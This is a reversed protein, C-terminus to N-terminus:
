VYSLVWCFGVDLEVFRQRSIHAELTGLCLTEVLEVFHLFLQHVLLALQQLVELIELLLHNLLGLSGVQLDTIVEYPYYIAYKLPIGYPYNLGEHRFQLLLCWLQSLQPGFYDLNAVVNIFQLFAQFTYHNTIGPGFYLPTM